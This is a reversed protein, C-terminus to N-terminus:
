SQDPSAALVERVKQGLAAVTFPKQLFAPGGDLMGHHVVVDPAYGSVFLARIGPRVAALRAALTPGSTGPMVVDTVLLHLPGGHAAAVALAEDAGGAELVRYGASRLMRSTVRRVDPQDEVVLVTETGTPALVTAAVGDVPRDVRPLDIQFTSGAEVESTVEIRGGSQDVIGYVTSLGLGTGRGLPKTTFFPEFIRRRTEADMGIGTDTVSLRVYRGPPPASGAGEADVNSTAITLRGGSPMADRANVVLNMLVQHLQSPDALVRGLEAGLAVSLEVDEGLLRLLLRETDAVVQNLDLVRPQLVQQRSFALLQQTLAAARVGANRIETVDERLASDAPLDLLMVESRGNIVTLLNNFDHAVGGALRGVSEMKQAQLLQARLQEQEQEARLREATAAELQQRKSESDAFADLVTLGFRDLVIALLVLVIASVAFIVGESTPNARPGAGGLLHQDRGLAVALFLLMAALTGWLARRGLVLAALALPIALNKLLDRAFLLGSAAIAVGLVATSGCAFIWAGLRFRGSRVAWVASLLVLVSFANSVTAPRVAAGAGSLARWAELGAMSTAGVLAFVQLSVAQRRELENAAPVQGLWAQARHIGGAM